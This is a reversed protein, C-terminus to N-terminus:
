KVDALSVAWSRKGASVSEWVNGTMKIVNEETSTCGPQLDAADNALPVQLYPDTVTRSPKRWGTQSLLVGIQRGFQHKWKFYSSKTTDKKDMTIPTSFPFYIVPDIFCPSNFKM